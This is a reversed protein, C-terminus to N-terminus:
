SATEPHLARMGIKLLSDWLPDKDGQPVRGYARMSVKRWFEPSHEDQPSMTEAMEKLAAAVRTDEETLTAPTSEQHMNADGQRHSSDLIKNNWSFRNIDILGILM